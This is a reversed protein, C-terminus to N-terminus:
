DTLQPLLRHDVMFVGIVPNVSGPYQRARFPLDRDPQSTEALGREVPRGPDPVSEKKRGPSLGLRDWILALITALSRSNPLSASANPKSDMWCYLRPSLWHGPSIAAHRLAPPLWMDTTVIPAFRLVTSPWMPAM